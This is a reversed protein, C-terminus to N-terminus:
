AYHPQAARAAKRSKVIMAHAAFDDEFLSELSMRVMSNADAITAYAATQDAAKKPMMGAFVKFM